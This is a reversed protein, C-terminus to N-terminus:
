RIPTKGRPVDIEVPSSPPGRTGDPRELVVSYRYRSGPDVDRDVFTGDGSTGLEVSRVLGHRYVRGRAFGEDRRPAWTLVVGDARVSAALGYGVSHVELPVAPQSDLGDRDVAIVSYVAPEDAGVGRDLAETETEPLETLLERSGGRVRYFRYAIIDPEVNADWALRNAGLGQGALRLGAPPLPDPKTVARVPESGPGRGGKRNVASVRYYFVRLDGVGRDVYV